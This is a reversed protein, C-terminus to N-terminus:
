SLKSDAQADWALSLQAWLKGFLAMSEKEVKLLPHLHSMKGSGGTMLGETAVIERAEAARDLARLAQEILVLRGASRARDPVLQRWLRQSAESLGPPAPWGALEQESPKKM